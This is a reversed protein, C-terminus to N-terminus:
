PLDSSLSVSETPHDLTSAGTSTKPTDIIPSDITEEVIKQDTRKKSDNLVSDVLQLEPTSAILTASLSAVSNLQVDDDDEKKGNEPTGLSIDQKAIQQLSIDKAKAAIKIGAAKVEKLTSVQENSAAVINREIEQRDQPNTIQQAAIVAQDNNTKIDAVTSLAIKQKSELQKQVEKSRKNAIDLYAQAKELPDQTAAITWNEITQKLPYLVDFVTVDDSRYAYISTLGITSAVVAIISCIAIARSFQLFVSGQDKRLKRFHRWLRYRIRLKAM